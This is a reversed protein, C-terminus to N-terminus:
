PRDSDRLLPSMTRERGIEQRAADARQSKTAGTLRLAEDLGRQLIVDNGIAIDAATPEVRVDPIIGVRQLQRGDPWRVGEGSFNFYIRGPLLM